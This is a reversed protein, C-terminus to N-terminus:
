ATMFGGGRNARCCSISKGCHGCIFRSSQPGCTCAIACIVSVCNRGILIEIVKLPLPEGLAHLALQIEAPYEQYIGSAVMM